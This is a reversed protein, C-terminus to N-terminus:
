GKTPAGGILDVVRSRRAALRKARAQARERKRGGEPYRRRAWPSAPDALRVAGVIAVLPVFAGAVALLRRGKTVALVVFVLNIAVVAAIASISSGDGTDFPALGSVVLGGILAAVVVADVSQRGEDTWYVDELHVWLAFEDLTLGAGIGFLVALVEYWPSPPALAFALFGAVILLLIGWVM